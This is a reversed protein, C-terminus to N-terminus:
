KRGLAGNLAAIAVEIQADDPEHTTLM